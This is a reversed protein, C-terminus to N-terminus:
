GAHQNPDNVVVAAPGPDRKLFLASLPPLTLSVSHPRSHYRMPAAEVAGFNGQGSGGYVEADSNLLERWVGGHPVGVRYNHRPVPTFNCIVLTYDERDHARRLFSIVSQESDSCDVWEFGAGDFDSEHLSPRGRYLRNLDRVWTQLGLHEAHELLWWDLERDHNWERWQGLEGGMFLLKKGPQGYMYGLFARLAAHRRWNDGHMKGLLSAKGHVVEDHSLALVFNESFAYMTRFTLKDHHFKRHIPDLQMYELQDHMWGMDWKMDFGLGGLHASRSVMPWATSEEAITKVGPAARHVADNLKRLFSIAELNERGGHKNRIWQGEERSYDLYLMSAVADVRLADIHYKEIWFLASSILFSQVEPRGFNFVYTKWDPQYGLKPDPYEFLRSGDFRALGHDDSPFHSPVWDLIVGIGRLHLRDILYMLDQPSGYRSSPAFYSTAQYGWSGYFPHELLPMLEVHTFGMQEVYDALRDAIERYGLMRGSGDRRWSGLHLEYISMPADPAQRAPRAALWDRDEWPHELTWIISATGPPVEARFAFPDAKDVRHGDHKSEVFLKYGAGPEIDGVFGTWLGTTGAPQLRDRGIEWGNFDGRISVARAEPAWVTFAFGRRGDVFARQAGLKEYLKFHEGRHFRLLDDRVLPCGPPFSVPRSRPTRIRYPKRTV